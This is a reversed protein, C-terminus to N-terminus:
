WELHSENLQMQGMFLFNKATRIWVEGPKCADQNPLCISSATAIVGHDYKYLPVLDNNFFHLQGVAPSYYVCGFSGHIESWKSDRFTARHYLAHLLATDHDENLQTAKQLLPISSQLIIGNHWFYTGEYVTPQSKDPGTPAQLHIIYFRFPTPPAFISIPMNSPWPGNEIRLSPPTDTNVLDASFISWRRGGRDAFETALKHALILAEKNAPAYIIVCM